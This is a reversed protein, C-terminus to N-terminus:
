CWFGGQLYCVIYKATTATCNDSHSPDRGTFSPATEASSPQLRALRTRCGAADFSSTNSRCRARSGHPSSSGWSQRCVPSAIKDRQKEVLFMGGWFFLKQCLCICIQTPPWSRRTRELGALGKHKGVIIGLDSLAVLKQGLTPKRPQEM